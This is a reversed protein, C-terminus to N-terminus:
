DGVYRASEVRRELEKCKKCLPSGLCEDLQHRSLEARIEEAERAKDRYYDDPNDWRMYDEGRM